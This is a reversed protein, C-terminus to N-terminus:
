LIVGAAVAIAGMLAAALLFHMRLRRIMPDCEIRARPFQLGDLRVLLPLSSRAELVPVLHAPSASEDDTRRRQSDNLRWCHM